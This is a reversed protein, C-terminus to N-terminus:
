AAEDNSPNANTAVQNRGATKAAYFAENASKILSATTPRVKRKRIQLACRILPQGTHAGLRAQQIVKDGKPHGLQGNVRKFHPPQNSAKPSDPKKSHHESAMAREKPTRM